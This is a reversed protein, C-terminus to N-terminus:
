LERAFTIADIRTGDGCRYYQKRRGIPEFGHNRYLHEAPNGERMELFLRSAGRETADRICDLLLKAGIGKGREAPDVAILLLEEEGPANRTMAFGAAPQGNEPPSGACDKLVYHTNPFVLSDTIQRRDWAEGWQPDFASEMVQMIRDIDDVPLSRRTQRVAM